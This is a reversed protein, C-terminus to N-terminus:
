RRVNDRVWQVTAEVPTGPLFVASCGMETLRPVDAKAITGGVVVAPLAGGAAKLGEIVQRSYEIHAGNLFSLGVVDVDEEVAMKVIQAVTQHLGTYIVEFGADLLAKAVVKAGRDHGDLGVKGVLVRVPRDAM